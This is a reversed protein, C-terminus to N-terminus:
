KKLFLSIKNSLVAFEDMSLTEGRRKSDIGCSSLAEEIENRDLNLSSGNLANLITKRRQAFAAKIVSFFLKEDVLEVPVQDRIKLHVVASDVGPVPMFAEAPVITVLEPISYYQVSLTLVGYDKGGPSATIREAVEKQVMLTISSLNLDEELLMMIIPTTIYYPLNAVVDVKAGGFNERFLERLNLRMIDDNVLIFNEYNSMNIKLAKVLDKDIEVALVRAARECLQRTLTGLGPGIELVMSQKNVNSVDLIKQLVEGDILFNQGYKKSAKIDFKKMADRTADALSYKKM